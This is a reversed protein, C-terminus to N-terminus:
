TLYIGWGWVVSRKVLTIEKSLLLPKLYKDVM